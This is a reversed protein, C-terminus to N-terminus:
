WGADFHKLEFSQWDRRHGRATALVLYGSGKGAEDFLYDIEVTFLRGLLRHYETARFVEESMVSVTLPTTRYDLSLVLTRPNVHPNQRLFRAVASSDVRAAKIDKNVRRQMYASDLPTLDPGFFHSLEPSSFPSTPPRGQCQSRHSPWDDSQCRQSCYFVTTCGSCVRLKPRPSDCDLHENNHCSAWDYPTKFIEHKSRTAAEVLSNFRNWAQDDSASNDLGLKKMSRSSKVVLHLISPYLLYPEIQVLMRGYVRDKIEADLGSHLVSRRKMMSVLIQNDLCEAVQSQGRTNMIIYQLCSPFVMSALDARHSSPVIKSLFKRSALWRLIHCALTVSGAEWLAEAVPGSLSVYVLIEFYGGLSYMEPDTPTADFISLIRRLLFASTQSEPSPLFPLIHDKTKLSAKQGGLGHVMVALINAATLPPKMDEELVWIRTIENYMEPFSALLISELDSDKCLEVFIRTISNLLTEQLGWEGSSQRGGELRRCLFPIFPGLNQINAKTLSHMSAISLLGHTAIYHALINLASVTLHGPHRDDVPWEPYSQCPINSINIHDFVIPIVTLLLDVNFALHKDLAQLAAM